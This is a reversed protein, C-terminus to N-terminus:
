GGATPWAGAAEYSRRLWAPEDARWRGWLWGPGAQEALDTVHGGTWTMRSSAGLALAAEFDPPTLWLAYQTGRAAAFIRNTKPHALVPTGNARARCDEPLGKGLQDWVREVIDPHSGSHLYPDTEGGDRRRFRTDEPFLAWIAANNADTVVRWRGPPPAPRVATLPVSHVGDRWRAHVWGDAVEVVEGFDGTWIIGDFVPEGTYEVRDGPGPVAVVDRSKYRM